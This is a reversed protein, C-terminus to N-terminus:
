RSPLTIARAIPSRPSAVLKHMGTSRHRAVTAPFGSYRRMRGTMKHRPQTGYLASSVCSPSTEESLVMRSCRTLIFLLRTLLTKHSAVRCSRRLDQLTHSPPSTNIVHGRQPKLALCARSVEPVCAAQATIAQACATHMTCAIWPTDCM